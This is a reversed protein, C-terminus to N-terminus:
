GQVGAAVLGNNSINFCDCCTSSNEAYSHMFGDGVDFIQRGCVSCVPPAGNQYPSNYMM